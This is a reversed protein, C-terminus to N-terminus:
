PTPAFRKLIEALEPEDVLEAAKKPKTWLRKREAAEPWDKLETKLEMPFVDVRCDLDPRKGMRKVYHFHGIAQKAIWGRIGAEEYAELMALKHPSMRKKPWGKPIVWRGTDRSSVLLVEVAGDIFRYPLAAYQQKLKLKKGDKLMPGHAKGVECFDPDTLARYFDKLM